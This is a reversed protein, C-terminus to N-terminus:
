KMIDHPCPPETMRTGRVSEQRTSITEWIRFRNPGASFLTCLITNTFLHLASIITILLTHM